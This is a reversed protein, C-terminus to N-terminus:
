PVASSEPALLLAWFLCLHIRAQRGGTLIAVSEVTEPLFAFNM